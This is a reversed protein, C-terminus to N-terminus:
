LYRHSGCGVEIFPDNVTPSAAGDVGVPPPAATVALVFSTSVDPGPNVIASLVAAPLATFRIFTPM